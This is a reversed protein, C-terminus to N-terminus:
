GQSEVKYWRIKSLREYRLIIFFGPLMALLVNIVCISIDIALSRENENEILNILYGFASYNIFIENDFVGAFILPLIFYLVGLFGVLIGIKKYAPNNVAYLEVLAVIVVYFSLLVALSTINGIRNVGAFFMATIAFGTWIVALVAATTINSHVVFYSLASKGGRSHELYGDFNRLMGFMTLTCLIASSTLFVPWVTIDSEFYKYFLGLLVIETAFMFLFAGARTFLPERDYNLKRVVGKFSWGSFYLGVLATLILVPLELGYFTGSVTEVKHSQSIFFIANM